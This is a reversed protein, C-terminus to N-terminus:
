AIGLLENLFGVLFKWVLYYPHEIRRRMRPWLDGRLASNRMPPVASQLLATLKEKERDNM